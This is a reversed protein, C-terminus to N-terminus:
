RVEASVANLVKRSAKDQVFFVAKLAKRNILAHREIFKFNPIRDYTKEFETLYADTKKESASLDFTVRRPGAPDLVALDRVVMKHFVIGNGGKYKEENQVLVVLYDAGPVIRDFGCEVQVSDGARSAALTLRVGPVANVRANVEAAFQKFKDGSIGRGGGGALVRDGDIIATPTSGVGYRDQRKRTAPNIMPDPRPIPLHYELVALYKAPYAEILGDFGLDAGVCPPCESGTFIEALVAKGKWEASPKFPEPEYPIRRQKAEFQAEFGDLKGNIAIYAAKAKDLAGPFDELAADAYNEYADKTKGQRSFVEAQVYYFDASPSGGEKKYSELASSTKVLDEQNLYARAELIKFGKVFYGRYFEQDEQPVGKYSTPDAAAKVVNDRYKLIAATVKAKDFLKLKPHELIQEAAMYPSGLRNPGEAKAIVDKQLNLVADLTDALEVKTMFIFEEIRSVYESRPYVAKIRELEKLRAAADEIQVAAMIQKLEPPQPRGQALAPVASALVLALTLLCGIMRLHSQRPM